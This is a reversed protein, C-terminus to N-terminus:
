KPAQDRWEVVKGLHYPTFTYCQEFVAAAFRMSLRVIAAHAESAGNRMWQELQQRM